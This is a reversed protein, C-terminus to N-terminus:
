GEPSEELIRDYVQRAKEYAGEADKIEEARIRSRKMEWCRDVGRRCWEASRRSARIPKDGVLVFIPNTHSSYLVRLAMWSSREVKREFRVDQWQGDAVIEKRDVPEGNVVLEVMVNRSKGIRAREVDWYPPLNPARSAIIAGIEDQVAPLYAAARASIQVKQPSKVDLQSKGMGLQTSNVRFDILHSRGESVYSRGDKIADVFRDFDLKGDLQAYTRALGVRDDFICPFDTEGSLRVRFGTSLTHYWMNLEWPLPTDGGSYFDVADNAVTVIYENAGIGDYKPQVYNPLTAVPEIPELGWGSHAYGVAGGQGRAWKLVPLTWSPWEEIKTTGPYDDEKLRLLCVHGAHSSPFGSVEVDYRMVNQDNSLPHAKGKFYTKQHYWCPGWSLVCAVNLDEGVAQRWMHEPQVGEEPSEYHSCGAAHVHHDGSYWGNRALHIWRKLQLSVEMSKTGAPVKLQQTQPLYEPGRGFAVQYNGPPLYVHEGDARYVQPHFFFDPFEDAGAHRRSPLPYLGILRKTGVKAEAGDFKGEAWNRRYAMTLRYDKPFPEKKPDELLREVGDSIVLSAMSPSGDEDKIRFVVKISPQCKFLVDIANRFGIDQTGQGIHFGIKAEHPGANKSYIQLIAYELGLGSLEKTMPRQRYMSLELFRSAAEGPAIVNEDKRNPLGTSRHLLPEANPSHAELVSNVAAQNQVKVLFTKWGNQILEAAAPGRIVKVRAEPNIEVLAFCYPDLIEQIERVVERGPARKQLAQLRRSDTSSLVSGLGSLAQDLRIAQALLPQAEADLVKPLTQPQGIRAVLLCLLIAPYLRKMHKKM